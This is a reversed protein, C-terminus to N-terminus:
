RQQTTLMTLQVNCDPTSKHDLQHASCCTQFMRINYAYCVRQSPWSACQQTPQLKVAATNPALGSWNLRSCVCSEQIAAAVVAGEKSAFGLFKDYGAGVKDMARKMSDFDEFTLFGYGKVRNNNHPDRPMQPLWLLTYCWQQM